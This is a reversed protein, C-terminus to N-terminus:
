KQGLNSLGSSIAECENLCNEIDGIEHNLRERLTGNEANKSAKGLCEKADKLSNVAHEVHRRAEENM